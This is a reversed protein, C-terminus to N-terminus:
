DAPEATPTAPAGHPHEPDFTHTSTETPQVWDKAGYLGLHLGWYGAVFLVLAVALAAPVTKLSNRIAPLFHLERTPDVAIAVIIAM